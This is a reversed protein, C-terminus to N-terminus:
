FVLAYTAFLIFSSFGLALGNINAERQGNALPKNLLVSFEDCLQDELGLSAVTRIDCLAESAHSGVEELEDSLGSSGRMQKGRIVEGIVLFPLVVLMIFTLLWSGSTFSILV